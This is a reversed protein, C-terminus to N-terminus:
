LGGPQDTSGTGLEEPDIAPDDPCVDARSDAYQQRARMIAEAVYVAEDPEYAEVDTKAAEDTKSKRRARKDGFLDTMDNFIFAAAAMSPQRKLKKLKATDGIAMLTMLQLVQM